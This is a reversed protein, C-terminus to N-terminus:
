EQRVVQAGLANLKGALDVYGREIHSVDTVTTHGEATLGALVLAAGARLDTAAVRAGHLVMVGRVIANRGRVAISAGMKRLQPVQMFRNEFIHETLISTGEARCLMAMMPAQLDTPFGPYVLTEVDVGRLRGGRVRLGSADGTVEAGCERLKATVAQLAGEEAGRLLVDGGTAAACLMLTGAEIRDAMPTYSAGHLASRGEIRVRSQGAGDIKAGMRVLLGALDVIEPEKAANELVTTGNALAAAMMLNETAGVSPFDLYIEAGHLADVRAEICGQDLEIRAGMAAFGKLHLDIPRSGIACGGPFHMRARGCRALLPGMVLVSARMRSLLDERRPSRPSDATMTLLKEAQDAHMLVGCDRLIDTLTKVDTLAPIQEITVTERTLLAGCMLPLVANKASHVTIEGSLRACPRIRYTAM